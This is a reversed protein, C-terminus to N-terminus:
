HVISRGGDLALIEGNAYSSNHLFLVAKAIELPTGLRKLPIKELTHKRVQENHFPQFLIAGPAVANVRIKPALEIAMSRTLLALAAKSLAYHAFRPNPREWMSDLINVVSPSTSQNLVNLLGQTIFLPALANVNLMEAVDNRSIDSFDRPYFTSANHVLLDLTHTKALVSQIVHDQGVPTALDAQIIDLVQNRLPHKAVWEELEKSSNHAHVFLKFGENLLHEAVGRGIRKASGTVLAIRM